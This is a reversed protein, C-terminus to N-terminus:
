SGVSQNTKKFHRYMFYGITGLLIYPVFMIYMIGSNIGKGVAEEGSQMNSELVAKCMACQASLEQQFGAVLIVIVLLILGRRVM